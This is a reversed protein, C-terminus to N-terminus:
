RALRIRQGPVLRHVGMAVVQDGDRLTGRVFTRDSESHLVQLERRKVLFVGEQTDSPEVVYANWLGRRGGIMAAMPLWFGEAPVTYRLKLRALQGSRLLYDPDDIEFVAPVTRTTTDLIALLARLRVSFRQGAVEIEYLSGVHM